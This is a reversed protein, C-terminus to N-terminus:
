DFGEFNLDKPIEKFPNDLNGGVAKKVLPITMIVPATSYSIILCIVMMPMIYTQVALIM